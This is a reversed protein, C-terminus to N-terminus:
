RRVIRGVRTGRVRQPLYLQCLSPSHPRLFRRRVFPLRSLTGRRFSTRALGVQARDPMPRGGSRGAFLRSRRGPKGHPGCARRCAPVSQCARFAEVRGVAFAVANQARVRLVRDRGSGPTARYFDVITRAWSDTRFSFGRASLVFLREQGSLRLPQLNRVTGLGRGSQRSHFNRSRDRREPPYETRGAPESGSRCLMHCLTIM